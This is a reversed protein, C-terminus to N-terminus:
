IIFERIFRNAYDKSILSREAKNQTNMVTKQPAIVLPEFIFNNSPERNIFWYQTPKKFHDGRMTRDNDILSPKLCWYTTLYHPQTYPNEIILPINKRKCVIVLNSIHVYLETLENQLKKSYELKKIIDWNKQDISEGRFKLPILAEFRICPFFAIITGGEVQINDFISEKERYAKEIEEFLDIVYDTEGFDNLIDYDYSDYGLKKFENKFTGSQEFFCHYTM